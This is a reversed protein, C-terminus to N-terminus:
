VERSPTLCIYKHISVLHLFWIINNKNSNREILYCIYTRNPGILMINCMLFILFQVYFAIM